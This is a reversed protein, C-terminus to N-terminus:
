NTKGENREEWLQRFNKDSVEPMKRRSGWQKSFAKNLVFNKLRPSGFDMWKRNLMITKWAFMSLAESVTFTKLKVSDNRNYLLLEHLNIKVPCVETCSGCLSSAFSMHKFENVGKLWPTIVSGIPGSYTTGYAHGGITKYVPCTNLCAGCRICSLARRQHKQALLQSRGNDLLVVYMEKPGDTEGDQRPGSILSNYATVYQGTGHTALLPWFLDLNRFSPLVKEIGTVVIHVKPFSMSLLGNGENETVCVSGTDAIIFNAGTIGVDAHFFKERLKKRVYATIDEPTSKVPLGFKENFLVAVDEKSKHMAPTVIHYPHEGAQQVIYEGLDTELVEIGTKELHDNLSIEESVMSKSKVVKAAKHNLLITEIERLADAADLAWIVKGGNREFNSEFDALNKELDAIARYRIAAARQRALELNAYQQKGRKVAEDYRGINFDLKRRHERDFAKNESDQRFKNYIETM